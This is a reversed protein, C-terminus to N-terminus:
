PKGQHWHCRGTSTTQLCPKGDRKMAGCQDKPPRPERNYMLRHYAARALLNASTWQRIEDASTM